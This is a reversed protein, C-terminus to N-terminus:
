LCNPLIIGLNWLSFNFQQLVINQDTLETQIIIRKLKYILTWGTGIVETRCSNSDAGRESEQSPGWM